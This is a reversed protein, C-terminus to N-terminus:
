PLKENVQLSATGYAKQWSIFIATIAFLLYLTQRFFVLTEALGSLFVYCVIATGLITLQYARLTRLWSWLLLAYATLGIAGVHMGIEIWDNHYHYTKLFQPLDRYLGGRYTEVTKDFYDAAMGTGHGLLPREVIGRLGVDWMALRYGLSTDYRGQQSLAIDSEAKALREQFGPSSYAFGGVVIILSAAVGLFIKIRTKYLMFVLLISTLITALLAIRGNQNFQVFLLFVAFIWLSSKIKKNNSIGAIYIAVIVGIGLMLSFSTYSMKLPPIGQVGVFVWQYLGALLVAFYGIVLGGIAWPLRERSLLSLYPVFFLFTLYRKWIKYGSNPSDSWLIGLALVGCFVLIAIVLPEKITYGFRRLGGDLTWVLLLLYTVYVSLGNHWLAIGFFFLGSKALVDRWAYTNQMQSLSITASERIQGEPSQAESGIKM